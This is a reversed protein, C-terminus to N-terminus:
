YTEVTEMPSIVIPDRLRRMSIAYLEMAKLREDGSSILIIGSKDIDGFVNAEQFILGNQTELPTGDIRSDGSSSQFRM